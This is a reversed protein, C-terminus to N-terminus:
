LGYYFYITTCAALGAIINMPIGVRLFDAFRYNGAGYVLTNTQYGIPTAFSASAAFMVAVVLPRPDIGIQAALGIVIPTVVVAVANNTIMETLVSTLMYIAILTLFPPANTLMPAVASVILDIAGTKQMGAGIILMAFILVLIAGDISGWAEDSDICRLLLIGAVAIMALIGIDAVNFAALLVVAMLAILAIPAKSRRFARGSTQTVSVLFGQQTMRDIGDPPGELLLKDAPRLLVTDLDRGPVHQHRHVGLIRVGFRSGLGLAGLAQGMSARHPAVIAEVIQTDSPMGGLRARGVRLAKNEGLTLLQSSTAAIILRDGKALTQEAVGERIVEGARKLGLVRLGPLKLAGINGVPETTFDGEALVAIETLFETDDSKSSTDPRDPLLWRGFVLMLTVGAAATIIGVPTIEFISFAQLGQDRAVGDVLLNTSTGILTCTGGLIAAYSIPILLRTSAINLKQALKIVVPILILVVPTNNVFASFLVAASLMMGIALLPRNSSWALILGSFGELVGTRVLAGTLVFMAGITLPASNSFVAMADAAPLLGLVIFMAAGGAATVEPPFRELLFAVFTGLVIVLAVYPEYGAILSHM